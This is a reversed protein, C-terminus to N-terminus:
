VWQLIIGHMLLLDNVEDTPKAEHGRLLSGMWTELFGADRSVQIPGQRGGAKAPSGLSSKFSANVRDFGTRICWRLTCNTYSRALALAELGYFQAQAYDSVM